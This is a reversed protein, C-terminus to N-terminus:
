QRGGKKAVLEAFKPSRQLARQIEEQSLRRGRRETSALNQRARLAAQMRESASRAPQQAVIRVTSERLASSEETVATDNTPSPSCAGVLCLLVLRRLSQANM